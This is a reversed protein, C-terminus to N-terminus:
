LEKEFLNRKYCVDLLVLYYGPSKQWDSKASNNIMEVIQRDSYGGCLQQYAETTKKGVLPGSSALLAELFGRLDVTKVLDLKVKEVRKSERKQGEFKNPFRIIEGM